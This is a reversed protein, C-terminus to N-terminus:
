LSLAQYTAFKGIKTRFTCRMEGVSLADDANSDYYVTSRIDMLSDVIGGSATEDSCTTTFRIDPHGDTAYDGSSIGESWNAAVAGLREEVQSAAYLALLQRRDDELSRKMGYNVFKVAPVLTAAMLAIAAVVEVLSYGRRRSCERRTAAPRPRRHPNRPM